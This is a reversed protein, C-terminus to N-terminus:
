VNLKFKIVNEVNYNSVTLDNPVFNFVSSHKNLKATIGAPVYPSNLRIVNEVKEFKSLSFIPNREEVDKTMNKLYQMTGDLHNTYIHTDGLMMNIRGAEFGCENALLMTWVSALIIDAPLGIMTDVSRQYWVMDLYKNDRVYWQYLLHCCPLSLSKLRDPRWGSIIMRRDHPNTKLTKVLEELQNVGNFDIWANGYDLELQGQEDAFENWYNCGQDTFDKVNSPGRLMAALEGLIPKIFIKRGTLLPFQQNIDIVLQEGFISLAAGARTERREGTRLIKEILKTYDYEWM